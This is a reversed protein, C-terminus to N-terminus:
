WGKRIVDVIIVVNDFQAVNLNKVVQNALELARQGFILM